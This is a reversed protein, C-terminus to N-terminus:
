EFINLVDPEDRILRRNTRIFNLVSAAYMRLSMGDPLMDLSIQLDKAEELFRYTHSVAETATMFSGFGAVSLFDYQAGVSDDFGPPDIEM